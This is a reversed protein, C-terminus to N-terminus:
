RAAFCSAIAQIVSFLLIHTKNNDTVIQWDRLKSTIVVGWLKQLKWAREQMLGDINLVCNIANIKSM